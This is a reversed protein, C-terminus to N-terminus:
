RPYLIGPERGERRLADLLVIKMKPRLTFTEGGHAAGNKERKREENREKRESSRHREREQRIQYPAREGWAEIM